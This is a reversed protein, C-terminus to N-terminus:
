FDVRFRCLLAVSDLLLVSKRSRVLLIEQLYFLDRIAIRVCSSAGDGLVSFNKKVGRFQGPGPFQELFILSSAAPKNYINRVNCRAIISIQWKYNEHGWVTLFFISM